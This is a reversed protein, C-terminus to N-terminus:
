NPKTLKPIKFDSSFVITTKGGKSPKIQGSLLRIAIPDGQPSHLVYVDSASWDNDILRVTIPDGLKWRIPKPFAYDWIPAHSNPIISSPGYTVGAVEVIVSLDPGGGALYKGVSANVEGRKVTM